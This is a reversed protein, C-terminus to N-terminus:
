QKSCDKQLLLVRSTKRKGSLCHLLVSCCCCSFSLFLTPIVQEHSRYTNFAGYARGYGLLLEEGATLRLFGSQYSSHLRVSMQPLLRDQSLLTKNTVSLKRKGAAVLLAARSQAEAAAVAESSLPKNDSSRTTRMQQQQQWKDGSNQQQQKEQDEAVNQLAIRRSTKLRDLASVSPLNCLIFHPCCGTRPKNLLAVPGIVVGLKGCSEILCHQEPNAREREWQKDTLEVVEARGLQESIIALTLTCDSKVYLGLGKETRKLEWPLDPAVLRELYAMISDLMRAVTQRTSALARKEHAQFAALVARRQLLKDTHQSLAATLAGRTKDHLLCKRLRQWLSYKPGLECFSM